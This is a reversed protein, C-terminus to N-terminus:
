VCKDCQNIKFRNALMTQDFKAHWQKHAQKIGYLLKVVRCVKKEKGPVIVGEPQEM